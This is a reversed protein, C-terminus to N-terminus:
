DAPGQNSGLDPLWNGASQVADWGSANVLKTPHYRILAQDDTVVVKEIFSGLFERTKRPDRCGAVMERVFEAVVDLQVQDFSAAPAPQRELAELSTELNRIQVNLERLRPSLDGLNPADVGHKELVDYLRSRRAEADRIQGVLLRRDAERTKIWDGKLEYIQSAIETLRAPTLIRELIFGVLFADIEGAPIRRSKCSSSGSVAGACNYYSYVKKRGTGTVIQLGKDCAGCRLLGTFLFNSTAGARSETPARATLMSQVNMFDEETILAAHSKVRIWDTVPRVIREARNMRNFTIHGTYVHNKLLNNVTNRTWRQGRRTLGRANLSRMITVVGMGQLYDAFISRVLSAEIEDVVMRKRRGDTQLGYGFPLVGGNFFGDRANKILSRKTDKSIKRSYQEDMMELMSELLWGEDTESDIDSSAYVVSTGDQRLLKKYQAADLKNRAFRSTDWAVFYKVGFLGCYECAEQFAPRSDTRGSIGEDKFVRVVQAGLQAAKRECQEVQSAIPLGEDAQKVSSVRAYIVATPTPDM